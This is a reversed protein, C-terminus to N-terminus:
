KFIPIKICVETGQGLVSSIEMKGNCMMQLRGMVNIIGVHTRGDKKEQTIDFGVGNDKVKVIYFDQNCLTSIEVTGGEIKGFIGHRIANEVIPQITLLPIKFEESQIDYVIKLREGFRIQELYLYSKVVELEQMIPVCEKTTLADMGGKLFGSFHEIMEIAKDPNRKCLHKIAILSNILFHPQIQKLMIVIRKEELEAELSEIKIAATNDLIIRKAMKLLYIFMLMLFTVKICTGQSYISNMIGMFDLLLTFLLLTLSYLLFLQKKECKRSQVLACIMLIPCLVWQSIEWYPLMDYLLVKDFYAFLMIICNLIMSLAIGTEAIKKQKNHLCDKLLVGIYYVFFMRCLINGYTNMAVLETLSYISIIDFLIYGGAFLTTLGYQLLKHSIKNHLIYSTLSAGLLMIAIVIVTLGIIQAPKGYIRLSHELIENSNPTVCLTDLWERYANKNGSKHYNILRIEVEDDKQIEELAFASWEKGCMSDMLGIGYMGVETQADIFICEGNVYVSVGIHNRYYNFKVNGWFAEKFHGRFIINGKLASIDSDEELTKWNKGDYSYEGEFVVPIPIGYIAQNNRSFMAIICAIAIMMPLIAFCKNWFQRKM